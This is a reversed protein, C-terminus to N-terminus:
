IKTITGDANEIYKIPFPKDRSPQMDEGLKEAKIKAKSLSPLNEILAIWGETRKGKKDTFSYKRIKIDDGYNKYVPDAKVQEAVEKQNLGVVIFQVGYKEVPKPPAPPAPESVPETEVTTPSNATTENPLLSSVKNLNTSLAEDSKCSCIRKLEAFGCGDSLSCTRKQITEWDGNEINREFADLKDRCSGSPFSRKLDQIGAKLKALAVTETNVTAEKSSTPKAGAADTASHADNSLPVISPPTTKGADDRGSPHKPTPKDTEKMIHETPAISSTGPQHKYLLPLLVVAAVTLIIGAMFAGATRWRGKSFVSDEQEDADPSPEPWNPSPMPPPPMTAPQEFVYVPPAFPEQLRRQAEEFLAKAQPRDWTKLALCDFMLNNLAGSFRSPLPDLLRALPQRDYQESVLQYLGGQEGFPADGTAVEYLCAGLAWIESAKVAPMKQQDQYQFLEPAQYALPGKGRPLEMDGDESRLLDRSRMLKENLEASIGFDTLLVDGNDALLFNDPKLDNHLVPPRLNHIYDLASGIDRILRWLMEEDAEGVFDQLSGRGYYPMVIFPVGMDVGFDNFRIINRHYLDNTRDFERRCLQVAEEDSQLFVKVAVWERRQEDWAKYVTSFGGHGLRQRIKYRPHQHLPPM